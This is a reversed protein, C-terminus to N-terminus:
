DVIIPVYSWYKSVLRWAGLSLTTWWALSWPLYEKINRRDAHAACHLDVCIGEIYIEPIIERNQKKCLWWTCLQVLTTTVNIACVSWSFFIGSHVYGCSLHQPHSILFCRPPSARHSLFRYLLVQHYCGQTCPPRFETNQGTNKLGITYIWSSTRVNEDLGDRLFM